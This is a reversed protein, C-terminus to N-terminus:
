LHFFVYRQGYLIHFEELGLALTLKEKRQFSPRSSHNSVPCSLSLALTLKLIFYLILARERDRHGAAILIAAWERAEEPIWWVTM